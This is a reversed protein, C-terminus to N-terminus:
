LAADFGRAAERLRDRAELERARLDALDRALAEGDAVARELTQALRRRVPAPGDDGITAISQRLESARQGNEALRRHLLAVQEHLDALAARDELLQDLRTRVSPDLEDSVAYRGLDVHFDGYLAVAITVPRREDVVLASRRGPTLPMPVVLADPSTETSPPLAHPDYGASRRHRIFIRAAARTGPDVEYRARRVRIREVTLEGERIALLRSPVEEEDVALEVRSGEDVAYPVFASEEPLLGDLLGQGVLEGHAYLTIPGPVLETRGNRIRAARFPHVDSAPVSPDPRYLLADEGSITEGLMAVMASRGAPVSVTRRLVYRTGSTASPMAEGRATRRLAEARVGAGEATGARGGRPAGSGASEVSYEVRRNRERGEATDRGDAPQTAGHPVIALRGDAIGRALLADRVASARAASLGWPDAEHSDAHGHIEVRTIDPNGALTAAVADILPLARSSLEASGESFFVHELIRLEADEILVQGRDPCGDDDDLGNFAEGDEPCVDSEDLIGDADRDVRAREAFVPGLALPTGRHGTVNPRDVVRPTRLDVAFSLPAATALTVSVDRWDEATTNDVVAWGQLMADGAGRDDPLVLRYSARWASTQAAYSVRVDGTTGVDLSLREDADGDSGDDEPLVVAPAVVQGDAGVVTLTTLVDDLEHARVPLAVGGGRAHGGREFYGVGNQYLVVERLRVSEVATAGGCGVLVLGIVWGRM